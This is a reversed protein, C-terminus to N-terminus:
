SRPRSSGSMRSGATPIAGSHPAPEPSSSRSSMPGTGAGSQWDVAGDKSPLINLHYDTLIYPFDADGSKLKFIVKHGGDATVDEIGALAGKAGSKSDEGRHLNISAIVDDAALSKGNSFEVGKRLNFAWTAADDSPEWSEAAGGRLSNDPAVTTLNDRTSFGTTIMFTDSYTAPDLSDAVNAGSVGARLHGGSKPAARAANTWMASAMSASLGLATAGALFERRTARKDGLMRSLVNEDAMADERWAEPGHEM